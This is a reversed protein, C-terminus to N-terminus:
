KAGFLCRFGYLPHNQHGTRPPLSYHICSKRYNTRPCPPPQRPSSSSPHASGADPSLCFLVVKSLLLLLEVGLLLAKEDPRGEVHVNINMVVQVCDFYRDAYITKNQFRGLNVTYNPQSRAAASVVAISRVSGNVSPLILGYLSYVHHHLWTHLGLLALM